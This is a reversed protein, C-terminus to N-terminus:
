TRVGSTFVMAETVKVHTALTSEVSYESVSSNMNTVPAVYNFGSKNKKRTTTKDSIDRIRRCM